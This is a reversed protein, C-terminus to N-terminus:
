LPTIQLGNNLAQKQVVDAGINLNDALEFVQDQSLRSRKANARLYSFPAMLEAAFARSAQQDRTVALSMLRKDGKREGTWATYAARAAAFRRQVEGKQLLAVHAAQDDRVVAGVIPMAEAEIRLHDVKRSPDIKLIEFLKTGGRPDADKIGLKRRVKRAAEVGRHWAPTSLNEAPPSITSLPELTSAPTATASTIALEAARAVAEFNEPASALCLDTVVRDGLLPLIRELTKEIPDNRVYPSLGLAGMNRCFREEDPTTAKVLAWEEQLDTDVLGASELRTAVATVFRRLESEVNARPLLVTAGKRFRIDAFPVDRAKASVYVNKDNPVILVKPLAFGHQATLISHRALFDPKDEIDENKRPEWLLAWWNEAMWEALFYAPIELHDSHDEYEGAYETVNQGNVLIKLRCMTADIETPGKRTLWPRHIEFKSM